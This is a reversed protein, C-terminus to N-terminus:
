GLQGQAVRPARMAPHHVVVVARGAIITAATSTMPWLPTTVCCLLVRMGGCHAPMGCRAARGRTSHHHDGVATPVGGGRLLVAAGLAGLTKLPLEGSAM